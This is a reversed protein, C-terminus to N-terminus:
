KQCASKDPQSLKFIIKNNHKSYCRYIVSFNCRSPRLFVIIYDFEVRYERAFSM